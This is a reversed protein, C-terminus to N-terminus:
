HPIGWFSSEHSKCAILKPWKSLPERWCCVVLFWGLKFLSSLNNRLQKIQKGFIQTKHSVKSYVVLLFVCWRLCYKLVLPWEESSVRNSAVHFWYVKDPIVKPLNALQFDFNSYFFSFNLFFFVGVLFVVTWSTPHALLLWGTVPLLFVTCFVHCGLLDQGM